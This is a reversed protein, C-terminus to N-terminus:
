HGRSYIKILYYWHTYGGFAVRHFTETHLPHVQVNWASLFCWFYLGKGRSVLIKHKYANTHLFQTCSNQHDECSFHKYFIHLIINIQVVNSTLSQRFSLAKEQNKTSSTSSHNSGACSSTSSSHYLRFMQFQINNTKSDALGFVENFISM